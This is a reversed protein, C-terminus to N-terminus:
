GQESLVAAARPCLGCVALTPTRIHRQPPRPVLAAPPCQGTPQRAMDTLVAGAMTHVIRLLLVTVVGPAAAAAAGAPCRDAGGVSGGGAAATCCPVAPGWPCPLAAPLGSSLRGPSPVPVAGALWICSALPSTRTRRSPTARVQHHSQLAQLTRAQSPAAAMVAAANTYCPQTWVGHRVEPGPRTAAHRVSVSHLHERRRPQPHIGPHQRDVGRAVPEEVRQEGQEDEQLDAAAQHGTRHEM